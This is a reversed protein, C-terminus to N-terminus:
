VFNMGPDAREINIRELEPCMKDLPPPLPPPVLRTEDMTWTPVVLRQKLPVAAAAVWAPASEYVKHTRAHEMAAETMCRAANRPLGLDIRWNFSRVMLQAIVALVAYREPDPDRPDPIDCLLWDRHSWFAELENRYGIWHDLLIYEHLRYLARLPKDHRPKPPYYGRERIAAENASDHRSALLQHPPLPPYPIRPKCFFSYCLIGSM